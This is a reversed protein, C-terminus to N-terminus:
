SNCSGGKIKKNEQWWIIRLEAMKRKTEETHKKGKMGSSKGKRSESMNKKAEKTYKKGTKVISMKLKTSAPIIRDKSWTNVGQLSKSINMKHQDTCSIGKNWTSRGKLSNAIKALTEESHKYGKMSELRKNISEQSRKYGRMSEAKPRLNYGFDRNYAKYFDLWYQERENLKNITDVYELVIFEFNEIGYCRMANYLPHKKSKNYNKRHSSFRSRINNSQGIYVKGNLLNRIKYIGQYKSM